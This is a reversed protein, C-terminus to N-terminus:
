KTELEKKIKSLKSETSKGDAKRRKFALFALAAVIIIAIPIIINLPFPLRFAGTIRAFFASVQSRISITFPNSVVMVYGLLVMLGGALTVLIKPAKKHRKKNEGEGKILGKKEKERFLVSPVGFFPYHVVVLKHEELIKAWSAIQKRDVGFEGAVEDFTMSQNEKVLKYFKDINTELYVTEAKRPAEEKPIEEEEVKRKMREPNRKKKPM